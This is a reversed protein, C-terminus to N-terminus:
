QPFRSSGIASPEMPQNWTPQFTQLQPQLQPLPEAGLRYPQYPQYTMPAQMQNMQYEPPAFLSPQQLQPVPMYIPEQDAAPAEEDMLKAESKVSRKKPQKKKEGATMMYGSGAIFAAVAGGGLIYYLTTHDSGASSDAVLSKKGSASPVNELGNEVAGSADKLVKDTQQSLTDLGTQASAVGSTAGNIGIAVPKFDTQAVGKLSGAMGNVGAAVDNAGEKGSSGSAVGATKAMTEAVGPDFERDQCTKPGTVAQSDEQFKVDAHNFLWCGGSTPTTDAKFSFEQCIPSKACNMACTAWNAVYMNPLPLYVDKGIFGAKLCSPEAAAAALLFLASGPLWRLM